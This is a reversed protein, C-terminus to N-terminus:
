PWTLGAIQQVTMTIHHITGLRRWAEASGFHGGSGAAAADMGGCGACHTSGLYQSRLRGRTLVRALNPFQVSPLTNRTSHGRILLWHDALAYRISASARMKVPDFGEVGSTHQIACDSFTPLRPIKGRNAYLDDRWASWELKPVLSDSDRGVLKMTKPIGCGSLTLTRWRGPEPVIGLFAASLGKVGEAVMHDVPGLDVIIDIEKPDLTHKSMFALLSRPLGGSELDARALRLAIGRERHALAADVDGSRSIGTVPTFAINEGVAKAFVSAAAKADASSVERTDIFCRPYPRVSDALGKFATTLHDGMSVGEKIQVIEMLPIVKGQITPDILQLAAKEARKVKLVPVYHEPGFTV